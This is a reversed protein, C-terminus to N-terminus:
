DEQSPIDGGCRGSCLNSHFHSGHFEDGNFCALTFFMTLTDGNPCHPSFLDGFPPCLYAICERGALLPNVLWPVELLTGIALMAPWGPPFISYWRESKYPIMYVSFAEPVPPAPVTLLGEALIALMISISLKM